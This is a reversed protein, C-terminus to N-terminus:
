PFVDFREDPERFPEVPVTGLVNGGEPLILHVGKGLRSREGVTGPFEPECLILVSLNDAPYAPHDIGAIILKISLLPGTESPEIGDFVKLDGTQEEPRSLFPRPTLTHGLDMTGEVVVGEAFLAHEDFSELVNGDEVREIVVGIVVVVHLTESIGLLAVPYLIFDNGVLSGRLLDAPNRPHQHFSVMEM